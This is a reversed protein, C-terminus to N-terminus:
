KNWKEICDVGVPGEAGCTNCTVWWPIKEGHDTVYNIKLDSSECFRCPILGDKNHKKASM